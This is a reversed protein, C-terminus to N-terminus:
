NMLVSLDLLTIIFALGSPHFSLLNFVPATERHRAAGQHRVGLENKTTYEGLEEKIKM